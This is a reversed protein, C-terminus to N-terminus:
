WRTAGGSRVTLRHAAAGAAARVTAGPATRVALAVVRALAAADRQAAAGAIRRAMSGGWQTRSRRRHERLHMATRRDGRREAAAVLTRFVRRGAAVGAADDTTSTNAGHRRYGVLQEPVAVMAGHQLLRLVLDHDEGVSYAADFGGVLEFAHRRLVLTVIRPLPVAGRLLDEATTDTAPWGAGFETGHGDLYWGGTFCGTSAPARRLSAVQAALKTPAWVDDDDLFALLEGSGVAAGSNRSLSVGRAGHRVVTASPIASAAAAVFGADPSGDDVITLTWHPYTQCAVGQLAAALYPSPRNTALVVDVVPHSVAGGRSRPRRAAWTVRRESTDSQAIYPGLVM